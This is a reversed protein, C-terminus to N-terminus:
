RELELQELQKKLPEMKGYEKYINNIILHNYPIYLLFLYEKKKHDYQWITM